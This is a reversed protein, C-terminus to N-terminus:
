AKKDSGYNVEEIEIIVALGRVTAPIEIDRFLSNWNWGDATPEWSEIQRRIIDHFRAPTDTDTSADVLSSIAKADYTPQTRLWRYFDSRKMDNAAKLIPRAQEANTHYNHREDILYLLLEHPLELFLELDAGPVLEIRLTEGDQWDLLPYEDRWQLRYEVMGYQVCYRDAVTTLETIWSQSDLRFGFSAKFSEYRLVDGNKYSLGRKKCAAKYAEYEQKLLIYVIGKLLNIETAKRGLRIAVQALGLAARYEAEGPAIEVTAAMPHSPPVPYNEDFITQAQM